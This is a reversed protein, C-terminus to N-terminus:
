EDTIVAQVLFFVIDNQMRFFESVKRHVDAKLAVGFAQSQLLRKIGAECADFELLEFILIEPLKRMRGTAILRLSHCHTAISLM